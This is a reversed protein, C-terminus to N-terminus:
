ERVQASQPALSGADSGHGCSQGVLGGGGADPGGELQTQGADGPGLDGPAEAVGAGARGLAGHALEDGGLRGLRDVLDAALLAGGEVADFGGDVIPSLRAVQAGDM